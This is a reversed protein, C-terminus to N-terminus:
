SKLQILHFIKSCIHERSKEKIHDVQYSKGIHTEPNCYLFSVIIPMCDFIVAEGKMISICDSLGVIM